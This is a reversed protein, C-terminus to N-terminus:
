LLAGGRQLRQHEAALLEMAHRRNAVGTLADRTSLANLQALTGALLTRQQLLRGHTRSVEGGVVVAMPLLVAAMVLDYVEMALHVQAPWFLARALLTLCLMMMALASVKMLQRQSLRDMEFALLVCLLQLAAGRAIDAVAYALVVASLSVLLQVLAVQQVSLRQSLVGRMFAYLGAMVLSCYGATLALAWPPTFGMGTSLGMLTLAVVTLWVPQLLRTIHERSSPHTGFFAERARAWAGDPPATPLAPHRPVGPAPDSPLHRM